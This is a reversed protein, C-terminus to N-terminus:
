GAKGLLGPKMSEQTPNGIWLRLLAHYFDVGPILANKRDDVSVRTGDQEPIFDIKVVVGEKLSKESSFCDLFAQLESKYQQKESASFNGEISEKISAEFKDASIERLMTIHVRKRDKNRQMIHTHDDSRESLYLGAVYVNFGWKSRVATGNLVLGKDGTGIKEPFQVGEVEGAFASCSLSGIVAACLLPRMGFRSTSKLM